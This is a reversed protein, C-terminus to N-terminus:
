HIHGDVMENVERYETLYAQVKDDNTLPILRIGAATGMFIGTTYLITLWWVTASQPAAEQLVLRMLLFSHAIVLWGITSRMSWWRIIALIRLNASDPAEGFTRMSAYLRRRAADVQFM